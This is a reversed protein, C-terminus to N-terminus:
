SRPQGLVHTYAGSSALAPQSPAGESEPRGRLNVLAGAILIWLPNFMANMLNDIAVITLVLALAASIGHDPQTAWERPNTRRLVAYAPIFFIMLFALLGMFGNQSFALVWFGDVVVYTQVYDLEVTRDSGWSGLGVLPQQWTNEILLDETRLRSAFSAVRRENAFSMVSVVSRSDIVGSVRGFVWGLPIMLLLLLPWRQNTSRCFAIVVFFGLLLIAAGYSQMALLVLTLGVCVMGTGFAIIRMTDRSLRLCIAVLAGCAIWMAVMLGHQMFVMPRYYNGRVTQQFEHQHFGYLNKHLHPSMRIEWVCFPVYIVAGIVMARAIDRRHGADTFFMRGLLYPGGFGLTQKVVGSAGDYLGYGNIVSSVLPVLCFAIIPLDWRSLRLQILREPDRFLIGLFIAMTVSTRRDWLLYQGLDVTAWPMFMVALLVSALIARHRSLVADFMLVAPVYAAMFIVAFISAESPNM